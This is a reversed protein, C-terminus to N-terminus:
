RWKYISPPSCRTYDTLAIEFSAMMRNALEDWSDDDGDFARLADETLTIVKKWELAVRRNEDAHKDSGKILAVVVSNSCDSICHYCNVHCQAALYHQSKKPDKHDDETYRRFADFTPQIAASTEADSNAECIAQYLDDTRKDSREKFIAHIDMATKMDYDETIIDVYQQFKEEEQITNHEVSM